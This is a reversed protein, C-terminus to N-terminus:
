KIKAESTWRLTINAPYIKKNEHHSRDVDMEATQHQIEMNAHSSSLDPYSIFVVSHIVKYKFM